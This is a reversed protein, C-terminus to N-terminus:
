LELDTPEKRCDRKEFDSILFELHKQIKKLSSIKVNV